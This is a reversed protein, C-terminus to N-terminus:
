YILVYLHVKHSFIVGLVQVIYHIDILLAPPRKSSLESIKPVYVGSECYSGMNDGLTSKRIARQVALLDNLTIKSSLESVKSEEELKTYTVHLQQISEEVSLLRYEQKRAKIATALRSIYNPKVIGHEKQRRTMKDPCYNASGSKRDYGSDKHINAALEKLVRFLHVLLKLLCELIGYKENLFEEIRVEDASCLWCYLRPLFSTSSEKRQMNFYPRLPYRDKWQAYESYKSCYAVLEHLFESYFELEEKNRGDVTKGNSTNSNEMQLRNPSIEFM